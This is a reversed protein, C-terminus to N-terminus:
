LVLKKFKETPSLLLCFLLGTLHGLLCHNIPFNPILYCYGPGKGNYLKVFGAADHLVAHLRFFKSQNFVVELWSNDVGILGGFPCKKNVLELDINEDFILCAALFYRKRIAEKPFKESVLGFNEELKELNM